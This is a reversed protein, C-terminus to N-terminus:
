PRHLLHVTSIALFRGIGWLFRLVTSVLPRLTQDPAASFSPIFASVDSVCFPLVHCICWDAFIDFYPSVTFKISPSGGGAWARRGWDSGCKRKITEVPRLHVFLM